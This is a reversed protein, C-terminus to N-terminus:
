KNINSDKTIFLKKIMKIVTSIDDKVEISRDKIEKPVQEYEKNFRILRTKSNMFTMEEFPFRIIGPTNFGIGFELLLVNKGATNEVFNVYNCKSKHWHDDEVFYRDCRLNVNMKEGCVPCKPVLNTPIKLNEDTEKLMKFVLDKNDYLKKHCGKECQLKSYSGQVEFIRDPNFGNNIFQGDCNTTIIFYEKDKVISLLDQYLDTQKTEYYSFYIHKAWYAWREEESKFPYFSSTYLDTIGYKKIYQKFDNEFKEGAYNIGASESLGSGAGIIIYDAKDIWKKIKLIDAM